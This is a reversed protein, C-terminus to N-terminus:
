RRAKAPHRKVAVGNIPKKTPSLYADLAQRLVWTQTKGAKLARKTLLRVM